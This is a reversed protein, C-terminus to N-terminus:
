VAKGIRGINWLHNCYLYKVPWIFVITLREEIFSKVNCFYSKIYETACGADAMLEHQRTALGRDLSALARQLLVSPLSAARSVFHTLEDCLSVGARLRDLLQQARALEPMHPLPEVHQLYPHLGPLAQLSLWFERDRTNIQSSLELIVLITTVPLFACCSICGDPEHQVKLILNNILPVLKNSQAPPGRSHM